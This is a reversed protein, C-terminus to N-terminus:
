SNISFWHQVYNNVDNVVEELAEHKNKIFFVVKVQLLEHFLTRM